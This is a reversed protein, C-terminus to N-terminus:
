QLCNNIPDENIGNEAINVDLYLFHPTATEMTKNKGSYFKSEDIIAHTTFPYKKLKTDGFVKLNFGALSLSKDANSCVLLVTLNALLVLSTHRVLNSDNM